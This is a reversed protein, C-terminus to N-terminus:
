VIISYRLPQLNLTCPYKGKSCIKGKCCNMECVNRCPPVIKNEPCPKTEQDLGYCPYGGYQSEPSSCNRTRFSM